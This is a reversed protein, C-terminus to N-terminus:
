LYFAQGKTFINLKRCAPVSNCCHLDFAVIAICVSYQFQPKKWGKKNKKALFCITSSVGIFQIALRDTATREASNNTSCLVSFISFFGM